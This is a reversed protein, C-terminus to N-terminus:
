AAWRGGMCWYCPSPTRSSSFSNTKPTLPILRAQVPALPIARGKHSPKPPEGPGDPDDGGGDDGAKAASRVPSRRSRSSTRPASLFNIRKNRLSSNQQPGRIGGMVKQLVERGLTRERLAEWIEKEQGRDHFLTEIEKVLAGDIFDNEVDLISIPAHDYANNLTLHEFIKCEYEKINELKSIFAELEEEPITAGVRAALDTIQFVLEGIVHEPLSKNEKDYFPLFYDILWSGTEGEKRKKHDEFDGWIDLYLVGADTDVSLELPERDYDSFFFSVAESDLSGFDILKFAEEVKEKETECVCRWGKKNWASFKERMEESLPRQSFYKSYKDIYGSLGCVV